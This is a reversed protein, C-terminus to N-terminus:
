QRRNPGPPIPIRELEVTPIGVLGLWFLAIRRRARQRERAACASPASGRRELLARLLRARLLIPILLLFFAATRPSPLVRALFREHVRTCPWDTRHLRIGGGGGFRAARLAVVFSAIRIELERRGPFSGIREGVGGCKGLLLRALPPMHVTPSARLVRMRLRRVPMALLLVPIPVLTIPIARGNAPIIRPHTRPRPAKRSQFRALLDAATRHLTHSPVGGDKEWEKRRPRIDTIKIKLQATSYYLLLHCRSLLITCM